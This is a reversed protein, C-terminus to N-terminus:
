EPCKLKPIVNRIPADSVSFKKLYDAQLKYAEREKQYWMECTYTDGVRLRQIYHVFEHVIISRDIVNDVRIQQDLFVTGGRQFASVECKSGNCYEKQLESTSLIVIKPLPIQKNYGTLGKAEDLLQHLDRVGISSASAIGSCLIMVLFIVNRM